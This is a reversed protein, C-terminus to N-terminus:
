LVVFEPVLPKVSVAEKVSPFKLTVPKDSFIVAVKNDSKPDRKIVTLIDAGNNGRMTIFSAEGRWMAPNDARFKMARAVYDRLDAEAANRPSLHGTTRAINDPQAGTSELSRDAFEDGYYLTIPGSYAALIAHRLKLKDYYQPDAPDFHDALRYGDHNSLYLNPMVHDNLYGRSTPPSLTTIIDEWGNELGASEVNQMPGSIREKGDFDFASLLGGDRYVVRNIM